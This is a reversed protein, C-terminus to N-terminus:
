KDENNNHLDRTRFSYQLEKQIQIGNKLIKIIQFYEKQEAKARKMEMNTLEQGIVESNIIEQKIGYRRSYDNLYFEKNIRNLERKRMLNIEKNLKIYYAELKELEVSNVKKHATEMRKKDEQSLQSLQYLIRQLSKNSLYKLSSNLTSNLSSGIYSLYNSNRNSISNNNYQKNQDEDDIAKFENNRSM